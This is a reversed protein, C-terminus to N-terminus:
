FHFSLSVFDVCSFFPLPTTWCLTVDYTPTVFAGFPLWVAAQFRVGSYSSCDVSHSIHRLPMEMTLWFFQFTHGGKRKREKDQTPVTCICTHALLTCIHITICTHPSACTHHHMHVHHTCIHTTICQPALHMCITYNQMHTHHHMCIWPVHMHAYSAYMHPSAHTHMTRAYTHLSAHTHVAHTHTYLSAHTHLSAHAYPFAHTHSVHMTHLMCTHASAHWTNICTHVCTSM